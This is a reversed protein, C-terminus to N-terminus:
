SSCLGISPSFNYCINSIFEKKLNYMTTSSSLLPALPRGTWGVQPYFSSAISCNSASRIPGSDAHHIFNLSYHAGSTQSTCLISYSYPFRISISCATPSKTKIIEGSRRLSFISRINMWWNGLYCWTLRNKLNAVLIVPSQFLFGTAQDIDPRHCSGTSQSYPRHKSPTFVIRHPPLAALRNYQLVGCLSGWVM